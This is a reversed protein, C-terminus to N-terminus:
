VPNDNASSRIVRKQEALFNKAVERTDLWACLIVCIGLVGVFSWFGYIFVTQMLLVRRERAISLRIARGEALSTGSTRTLQWRANLVHLQERLRGLRPMMVLGGYLACLMMGTLFVLGITRIRRSRPSILSNNKAM